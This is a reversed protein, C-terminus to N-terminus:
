GIVTVITETTAVLLPDIPGCGTFAGIDLGQLYVTVGVAAQDCPITYSLSRVYAAYEPNPGLICGATCLPANIASFGFTIFPIAVSGSMVYNVQEGLQPIGSATMTPGGCTTGVTTFSGGTNPTEIVELSCIGRAGNFGGLRILVPANRCAPYTIRSLLGCSDDNCTVSVLSGGCAGVLAQLASDYNGGTCANIEVTSNQSASYVFWLDSGGGACPWAPASTTAGATNFPGNLGLALPIATTCEDNAVCAVAGNVTRTSSGCANSATLTVNYVGAVTYTFSPNQVNSDVVNDGNFDWAWATPTGTSTDTFTVNLPTQGVAPTLTFSTAVTLQPDVTILQNKTITAQPHLTDTVTLSVSYRGCTNYTTLPSQANSDVVNDGDFDWAWSTVGGPDSTFTTDTFQVNLPSPGSTPTATFNPFLGVGPTYHICGNFNRFSFVSGTFLGSVAAGSTLTMEARPTTVQVGAGTGNYRQGSGIVRVGVGYTGPTLIVPSALTFSTPQNLAASTVPGGAGRLTWAGPVTQSGVYSGSKVYVEMSVNANATSANCDFGVIRVASTVNLDFM